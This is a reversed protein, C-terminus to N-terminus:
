SPPASPFSGSRSREQGRKRESSGFVLVAAGAMIAVDAVNFIGTRLSGIGLNMFDVVRGDNVVRDFWNSLGGGVMMALGLSSGLHLHRTWILYGLMAFLLGGVGITLIWFQWAGPLAGGLGLFAGPNEAYDLRFVDGLFSQRPTGKLTAVAVKKTLQDCGVTLALVVTTSLVRTRRRPARAQAEANTAASADM